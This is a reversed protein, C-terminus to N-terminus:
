CLSYRSSCWSAVRQGCNVYCWDSCYNLSSSAFSPVECHWSLKSPAYYRPLSNQIPSSFLIQTMYLASAEGCCQGLVVMRRWWPLEYCGAVVAFYDFSWSLSSWDFCTQFDKLLGWYCPRSKSCSVSSSAPWTSDARPRLNSAFVFEPPLSWFVTFM